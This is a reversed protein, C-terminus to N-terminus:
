EIMAQPDAGSLVEPPLDEMHLQISLEFIAEKIQEVTFPLSELEIGTVTVLQLDENEENGNVSNNGSNASLPDTLPVQLHEPRLSSADPAAASL